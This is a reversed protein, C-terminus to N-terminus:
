RYLLRVSFYFDFQVVWLTSSRTEHTSDGRIENRRWASFTSLTSDEMPPFGCCCEVVRKIGHYPVQGGLQLQSYSIAVVVAIISYKRPGYPVLRRNRHCPEASALAKRGPNNLTDM